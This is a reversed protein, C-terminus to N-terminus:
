FCGYAKQNYKGDFFLKKLFLKEIKLDTFVILFMCNIEFNNIIVFKVKSKFTYFEVEIEKLKVM